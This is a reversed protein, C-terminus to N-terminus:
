FGEKLWNPKIFPMPYRDFPNGWWNDNWWRTNFARIARIPDGPPGAVPRGTYPRNVFPHGVQNNHIDEWRHLFQHWTIRWYRGRFFAFKNARNRGWPENEFYSSTSLLEVREGWLPERNGSEVLMRLSEGSPHQADYVGYISSWDGCRYFCTHGTFGGLSHPNRDIHVEELTPAPYALEIDYRWKGWECPYERLRDERWRQWGEYDFMSKLSSKSGNRM